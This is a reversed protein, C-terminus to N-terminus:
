IRVSRAALSRIEERLANAKEIPLSSMQEMVIEALRRAAQDLKSINKRKMGNMPYCRQPLYGCSKQISYGPGIKTLTEPQSFVKLRYSGVGSKASSMM